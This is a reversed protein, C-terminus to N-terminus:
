RVIGDVGGVERERLLKDVAEVCENRRVGRYFQELNPRIAFDQKAALEVVPRPRQHECVSVAGVEVLDPNADADESLNDLLAVGRVAYIGDVFVVIGQALADHKRRFAEGAGAGLQGIDEVGLRRM